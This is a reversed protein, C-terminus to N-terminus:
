LALAAQTDRELPTVQALAETRSNVGLRAYLSELHKSVTAESIGLARAAQRNSCGAALLRLIDWQRKTLEPRGCRRRLQRLCVEILHPRLLGLLIVERESFDRGDFRFLLVRRDLGDLMPLPMLVEHRVGTARLYTGAAGRNVDRRSYFDSLRTISHHDGNRQPYNCAISDPFSAWFLAELEDDESTAEGTPFSQGRTWQRVPDMVQFTIDDCPILGALDELWSPPVEDNEGAPREFDLLGKLHKVDSAILHLQDM